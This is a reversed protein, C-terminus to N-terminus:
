PAPAALLDALAEVNRRAMAAMRPQLGALRDRVQAADAELRAAAQALTAACLDPAPLLYRDHGFLDLNIGRAKASYGISLTPVGSSLAAITAHTRAGIFCRCRAIADKTVAADLGPELLRMRGAARPAAARVAALIAPDDEEPPRGDGGVHPVLLVDADHQGLWTELFRACERALEAADNGARYAALLASVNFGLVGGADLADRHRGTYPRRELLFAPDYVRVVPARADLRRLYAETQAERATVLSVRSLFRRAERELDPRASFPGFSAAWLVFPIGADGFMHAKMFKVARMGYDLSYNDGGLSLVARPRLGPLRLWCRCLRRRWRGGGRLYLALAVRLANRKRGADVVRVVGPRALCADSEADDSWLVFRSGPWRGRILEVTCRTIAECGRNHAGGNDILWWRM